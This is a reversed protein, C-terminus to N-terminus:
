RIAMKLILNRHEVMEAQIHLGKKEVYKWKLACLEGDKLGTQFLFPIAMM